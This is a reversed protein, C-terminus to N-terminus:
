TGTAPKNFTYIQAPKAQPKSQDESRRAWNRVAAKWDKMPTSGVKWGKSAYYDCFREPDVSLGKERCYARVEDTTPPTMKAPSNKAKKVQPKESDVSEQYEDWHTITAVSGSPTSDITIEGTDQLHRLATRVQKDSIGLTASLGARSFLAQGRHITRGGAAGDEWCATLLLELWVSKTVPDSYWEWNRMQRHIKIYGCKSM